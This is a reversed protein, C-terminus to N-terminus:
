GIWKLVILFADEGKGHNIEPKAFHKKFSRALKRMIRMALQNESTYIVLDKGLQKIDFVRDMPDKRYAQDATGLAARKVEEVKDAPLDNIRVEGEWERKSWMDCAPCKKFSVKKDERVGSYEGLDHHWSKYFYASNCVPCLVIGTKGPGFEQAQHRSAKFGKRTM